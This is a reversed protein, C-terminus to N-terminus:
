FGPFVMFKRFPSIEKELDRFDAQSANGFDGAAPSLYGRSSGPMLLKQDGPETKTPEQKYQLLDQLSKQTLDSSTSTSSIKQRAILAKRAHESCYRSTVLSQSSCLEIQPSPQMACLYREFKEGLQSPNSDRRELSKYNASTLPFHISAQYHQDFGDLAALLYFFHEIKLDVSEHNLFFTGIHSAPFLFHVM